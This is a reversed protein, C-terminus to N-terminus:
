KFIENRKAEELTKLIYDEHDKLNLSKGIIAKAARQVVTAISEGIRNKQAEKYADLEEQIERRSDALAQELNERFERLESSMEEKFERSVDHMAHLNEKSAELLAKRNVKVLNESSEIIFDEQERATEEVKSDLRSSMDKSMLNADGLIKEARKNADQVLEFAQRKAEELVELSEAYAEEKEKDLTTAKSLLEIFYM